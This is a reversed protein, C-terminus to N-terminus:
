FKNPDFGGGLFFINRQITSAARQGCSETAVVLYSEDFVEERFLSVVRENAGHRIERLVDGDKEAQRHDLEDVHYTAGSVAVIVIIPQKTTVRDRAHYPFLLLFVCEPRRRSSTPSKM